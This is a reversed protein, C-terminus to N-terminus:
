FGKKLIIHRYDFGSLKHLLKNTRKSFQLPWVMMDDFVVTCNKSELHRKLSKEKIRYEIPVFALDALILLLKNTGSFKLFKAADVWRGLTNRMSWSLLTYPFKWCYLGLALYGSPKLVRLLGDITKIPDLTHHAVGECIIFDFKNDEFDLKTLDKKLYSVNEISNAKCHELSRENFDVAFIQRAKFHSLIRTGKQWAGCGADLVIGDRIVKDLGLSEIRERLVGFTTVYANEESFVGVNEYHIHLKDYFRSTAKAQAETFHRRTIKSSM